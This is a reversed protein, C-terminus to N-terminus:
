SNAFANAPPHDPEVLNASGRVGLLQYFGTVEYFGNSAIELEQRLVAHGIAM